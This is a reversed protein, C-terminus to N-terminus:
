PGRGAPDRHRPTRAPVDLARRHRSGMEALGEVNVAAADVEDERVVLVLDRLRAAGEARRDHRLHPHMVAEELDFSLLHRLAEAVEDSHVLQERAPLTVGPRALCDSERHQLGLIALREVPGHYTEVLRM